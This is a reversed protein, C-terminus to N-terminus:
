DRRLEQTFWAAVVDSYSRQFEKLETPTLILSGNLIATFMGNGVRALTNRSSRVTLAHPCEEGATFTLAMSTHTGFILNVGNELVLTQVDPLKSRLKDLFVELAKARDAFEICTGMSWLAEVTKEHKSLDQYLAIENLAVLTAHAVFENTRFAMRFYTSNAPKFM